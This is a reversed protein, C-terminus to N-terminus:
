ISLVFHCVSKMRFGPIGNMMSCKPKDNPKLWVLWVLFGVTAAGLHAASSVSSMGKVGILISATYTESIVQWEANNRYLGGM